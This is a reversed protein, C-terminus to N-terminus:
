QLTTEPVSVRGAASLASVLFALSKASQWSLAQASSMRIDLVALKGVHTTIVGFDDPILKSMDMVSTAERCLKHSHAFKGM